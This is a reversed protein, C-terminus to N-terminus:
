PPYHFRTHTGRLGTLWSLMRGTKRSKAQLYELVEHNGAESACKLATKGQFNKLNIDAKSEVLLRVIDVNGKQAAYHLPTLGDSTRCNFDAGSEVLLRVIDLNNKQAAYHLPTLEDSTRYNVDARSEVLLRVIDLNEKQAAYHLPTFGNGTRYNVDARSEVLLRIIELSGKQAAYHLSIFGDRTKRNVKAGTEVLYRVIDLNKKQAAYHLPTLGDSTRYNVDAKSEVLFRVIDLNEKQAAYHLPTFGNGTRNNVDARSEVLLRIIELSGKQAAYHLSIFGDRTKRNVKAGSEVLYRVIDLNRKQAAYHLLTFGDWTKRNVNAGSEVLYRVIDLNEKKAAYHLPNLGARTRCNVDAGSEVLFRVIDLSMKQAAYHLPTLGGRTRFNVNARSEVLFRVTDLNEKQIAYQLPMLGKEDRSNVDAGSEVLYRVIDLNDKQAAYHLPTLGDSTRYNVDARSEVLFRVTDLNEKQIAYQLPMLGKEDRSNVDAGSDVLYRVIDLNDKQAAFHLPTLGDSTRYNVDAKSEVLLRVIDLNGIQAAYHLPTFGDGTRYNVDARSEVLLRVIDLNDKQAAYHLPTFGNGTRYNVDARSEVLLRIIDLSGKQAAYHLSIFGDRTKRNVKAGTEVLYRVIDLNKKQAAYHLPTLGGRTRFNVNARSEVLFRVTDLNEKQAAYHLPTFGDGTRYNVDARSEVLLRVIDLNDKQAAYHLPTFGDSTRCNFDAKSEVLYRVIDLNDKQAAFHLPTFGDSTRYNVDAGSEVLFRVSDQSGNQAANHLPTLGRKTRYNVDAGSEVLSRVNEINKYLKICFLPSSSAIDINEEGAIEVLYRVLENNGQIVLQHLPTLWKKGYKNSNAASVILYNAIDLSELQVAFYLSSLGKKDRIFIDAGSEVLCQVNQLQKYHVAYHLSTLGDKDENNVYAGSQVLYRLVRASNKQHSAYYLPTLGNENRQNVSEGDTILRKVLYLNGDRVACHLLNDDQHAIEPLVRRKEIEYINRRITACQELKQLMSELNKNETDLTNSYIVATCYVRARSLALYLQHSIKHHQDELDTLDMLFLIAPWEASYIDKIDCVPGLNKKEQGFIRMLLKIAQESNGILGIDPSGSDDSDSINEIESKLQDIVYDRSRLQPAKAYYITVKPGRIFHGSLQMSSFVITERIQELACAIEFTNRFNKSLHLTGYTNMMSDTVPSLSDENEPAMHDSSQAIDTFIFISCNNNTESTIQIFENIRTERDYLKDVLLCHEDDIFCALPKHIDNERLLQVISTIIKNIVQLGGFNRTLQYLPCLELLAVNCSTFTFCISNAFDNAIEDIEDVDLLHEEIDISITEYKVSSGELSNQYMKRSREESMNKFIVVKGENAQATKIAKGIILITKGSGAPGNVWLFKKTSQYVHDQEQSLFQIGMRQFVNDAQILNPNNYEPDDSKRFGYTIQADRLQSDVKKINSGFSCKELSVQNKSDINWLGLLLDTLTAMTEESVSVSTTKDTVNENWWAQFSSFSNAFIINSRQEEMFIIGCDSSLSLFACYWTIYPGTEEDAPNVHRLVGEILEKTREGQKKKANFAKKLKKDTTKGEDRRVDSVEIIVVCNEGVAVFDCEGAVKNPKSEDFSFDEKFLKFQRNTYDLSHLVLINEELNQLARYVTVEAAYDEQRRKDDENKSNLGEEPFQDIYKSCNPIPPLMTPRAPTKQCYTRKIAHGAEQIRRILDEDSVSFFQKFM